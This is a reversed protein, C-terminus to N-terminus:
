RKLDVVCLALAPSDPSCEGACAAACQVQAHTRVSGGDRRRKPSLPSMMMM